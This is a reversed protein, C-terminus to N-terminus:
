FGHASDFRRGSSTRWCSKMLSSSNRNNKANGRVKAFATPHVGAVSTHRLSGKRPGHRIALLPGRSTSLRLLAVFGIGRAKRGHGASPCLVLHFSWFVVSIMRAIIRPGPVLLFLYDKCNIPTTSKTPPQIIFFNNPIWKKGSSIWYFFRSWVM